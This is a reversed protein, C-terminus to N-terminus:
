CGEGREEGRTLAGGQLAQLIEGGAGACGNVGICLLAVAEVQVASGAEGGVQAEAHEGRATDSVSRLLRQIESGSGGGALAGLGPEVLQDPAIEVHVDEIM